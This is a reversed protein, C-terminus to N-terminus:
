LRVRARELPEPAGSTGGEDSFTRQLQVQEGLVDLSLAVAEPHGFRSAVGGLGGVLRVARQPDAGLDLLLRCTTEDGRSAAVGLPSLKEMKPRGPTGESVSPNSVLAELNLDGGAQVLGPIAWLTGPSRVAVHLVSESMGMTRPIRQSVRDATLLRDLVTAGHAPDLANVLTHGQVEAGHALLLEVVVDRADTMGPEWAGLVPLKIQANGSPKLVTPRADLAWTLASSLTIRSPSPEALLADLLAHVDWALAAHLVPAVEKPNNTTHSWLSNMSAPLRMVPLARARAHLADLSPVSLPPLPMATM